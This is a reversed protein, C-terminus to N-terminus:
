TCRFNNGFKKKIYTLNGGEATRVENSIDPDGFGASNNARISIRYLTYFDLSLFYSNSVLKLFNEM